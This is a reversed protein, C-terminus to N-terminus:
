CGTNCTHPFRIVPHIDAPWCLLQRKHRSCKERYWKPFILVALLIHTYTHARTFMLHNSKLLLPQKTYSRNSTDERDDGNGRYERHRPPDRSLGPVISDMAGKIRSTETATEAETKLLFSTVFSSQQAWIRKTRIELIVYVVHVESWPYVFVLWRTAWEAYHTHRDTINEVCNSYNEKRVYFLQTDTWMGWAYNVLFWHPDCTVGSSNTKLISGAAHWVESM